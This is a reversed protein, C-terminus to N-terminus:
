LVRVFRRPSPLHKMTCSEDCCGSGGADDGPAGYTRSRHYDRLRRIDVTGLEVLIATAIVAVAGFRLGIALAVNRLAAWVVTPLLVAVAVTDGAFTLDRDTQQIAASSM